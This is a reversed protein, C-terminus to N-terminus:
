KIGHEKKFDKSITIIWANEDRIGILWAVSDLIKSQWNKMSVINIGSYENNKSM